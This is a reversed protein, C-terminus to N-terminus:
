KRGALGLAREQHRETDDMHVMMRLRARECNRARIAEVIDRHTDISKQFEAESMQKRTVRFTHQLLDSISNLMVTFICNHAAAAIAQHFKLDAAVHKDRSTGQLKYENLAAELAKLDEPKHHKAALGSLHVELLRRADLMQGLHEKTVSVHTLLADRVTEWSPACVTTGIGHQIKVYGMGQLTQLAERIVTRSVGFKVCLAREQPLMEGVQWAGNEILTRIREVVQVRRSLLNIPRLRPRPM